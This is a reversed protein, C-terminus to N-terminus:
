NKQVITRHPYPISIGEKDFRKKISEWLDCSMQFADAPDKAWIWAKLQVSSDAWAIVRVPVQPVDNSKDEDTRVDICMPHNIAEETIIARAKDIDSEYSIGFVMHKCIKPDVLDSNIITDSSISSNPIIIRQNEFNRIVTHRLTIDEVVGALGNVTIRDNVGFPKYIVIFLGSIINSLAAQSAFGVAVAMIGAGALISTALSKLAPITYIALGFGVSYIVASIAHRLFKYNTPDYNADQAKKDIFRHFLRNFIAAAVFCVILIVVPLWLQEVLKDLAM